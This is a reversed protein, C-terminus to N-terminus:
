SLWGYAFYSHVQLAAPEGVRAACPV